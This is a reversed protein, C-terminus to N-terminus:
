VEKLNAHQVFRCHEPNTKMRKKLYPLIEEEKEFMQKENYISCYFRYEYEWEDIFFGKKLVQVMFLKDKREIIRYELENNTM